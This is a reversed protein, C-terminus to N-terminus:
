KRRRFRFKLEDESDSDDEVVNIIKQKKSQRAVDQEPPPAPRKGSPRKASIISRSSRPEEDGQHHSSHDTRRTTRPADVDITDPYDDENIILEPPVLEEEQEDEDHSRATTYLQSQTDQTSRDKGKDKDIPRKKSKDSKLWYEEGIGFDKKKVEELPVIVSQGRRAQTGEGQRRFRKFNKRGNWAEDWRSSSIGNGQIRSNQLREPLAMEEIVALNKIEEVNLGDLTEKLSAEDRRAADDEAERRERVVEQINLEKKRKQRKEPESKPQSKSFTTEPSIGNQRAEEQEEIKRRKMAAAAPLMQDILDDEDEDESRPAPRKRSVNAQSFPESEQSEVERGSNIM